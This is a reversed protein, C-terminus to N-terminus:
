LHNKRASNKINRSRRDAVYILSIKKKGREREETRKVWNIVRGASSLPSFSLFFFSLFFSLFFDFLHSQTRSSLDLGRFFRLFYFTCFHPFFPSFYTEEGFSHCSALLSLLGAPLFLVLSPGLSFYGFMPVFPSVTLLIQYIYLIHIKKEPYARILCVCPTTM